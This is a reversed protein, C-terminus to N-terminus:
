SEINDFTMQWLIVISVGSGLDGISIQSADPISIYASPKAQDQMNITSYLALANIKSTALSTTDITSSPIVFKYTVSQKSTDQDISSYAVGGGSAMVNTGLNDPSLASANSTFCKLFKPANLTVNGQSMLCQTLFDFLPTYGTNHRKFTSIAKGNKVLKITVDGKYSISSSPTEKKSEEEVIKTTKKKAM